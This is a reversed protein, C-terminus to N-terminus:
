LNSTHRQQCEIGHRPLNVAACLWCLRNHCQHRISPLPDSSVRALRKHELREIATTKNQSTQLLIGMNSCGRSIESIVM